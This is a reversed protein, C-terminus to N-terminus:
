EPAQRGVARRRQAREVGSVVRHLQGSFQAIQIALPHRHQHPQPTRPAEVGIRVLLPAGATRVAVAPLQGAVVGGGPPHRHRLVALFQQQVLETVCRFEMSAQQAIASEPPIEPVRNDFWALLVEPSRDLGATPVAKVILLPQNAARTVETVRAVSAM